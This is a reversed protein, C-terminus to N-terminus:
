LPNIMPPETLVQQWGRGASVLDELPPGCWDWSEVKGPGKFEFNLTLVGNAVNM